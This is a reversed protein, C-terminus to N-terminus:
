VWIRTSGGRTGDFNPITLRGLAKQLEYNQTFGRNFNRPRNRSKMNCSDLFSMAAHFEDGLDRYEELYAGFPESPEAPMVPGAVANELFHPKITKSPKNYIHPTNQMNIYAHKGSSSASGRDVSSLPIGRHGPELKLALKNIAHM